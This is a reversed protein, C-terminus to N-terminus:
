AGQGIEFEAPAPESVREIVQGTMRDDGTTLALDGISVIGALQGERSLVILRRVQWDEMLRAAEQVDQDEFCSVVEPTMAHRVRTSEPDRHEAVIRLVIDRDTIMGVVLGDEVVPLPGIDLEAMKEAAQAITGEPHITEVEETM